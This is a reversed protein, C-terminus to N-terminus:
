LEAYICKKLYLVKMGQQVTTCINAFPKKSFYTLCKLLLKATRRAERREKSRDMGSNTSLTYSIM